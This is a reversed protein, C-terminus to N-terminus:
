FICGTPFKNIRIPLGHPGPNNISSPCLDAHLMKGMGRFKFVKRAIELPFINKREQMIAVRRRWFRQPELYLEVTPVAKFAQEM